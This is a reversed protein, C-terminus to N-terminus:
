KQKNFQADQICSWGFVPGCPVRAQSWTVTSFLSLSPFSSWADDTQHSVFVTCSSAITQLYCHGQYYSDKGGGVWIWLFKSKSTWLAHFQLNISINKFSELPLFVGDSMSNCLFLQSSSIIGPFRLDGEERRGALLQHIILVLVSSRTVWPQFLVLRNSYIM